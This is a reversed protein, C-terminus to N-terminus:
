RRRLGESVVNFSSAEIRVLVSGSRVEPLPIDEFSLTGGLRDLRWTKM